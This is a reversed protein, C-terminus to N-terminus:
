LFDVVFNILLSPYTITYKPRGGREKKTEVVTPLTVIDKVFLLRVSANNIHKKVTLM